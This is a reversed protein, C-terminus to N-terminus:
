KIDGINNYVHTWHFVRKLLKIYYNYIIYNYRCIIIKVIGIVKM